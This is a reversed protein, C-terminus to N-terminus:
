VGQEGGLRGRRAGVDRVLGPYEVCLRRPTRLVELVASGPEPEPEEEAR